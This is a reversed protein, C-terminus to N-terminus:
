RWGGLNLPCTASDATYMVGQDCYTVTCDKLRVFENM